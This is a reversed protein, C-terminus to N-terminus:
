LKMGSRAARTDPPQVEYVIVDFMPTPDITKLMGYVAWNVAEEVQELRDMNDEIDIYVAYRM